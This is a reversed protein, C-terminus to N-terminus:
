EDKNSGGFLIGFYEEMADAIEDSTKGDTVHETAKVFYDNLVEGYPRYTNTYPDFILDNSGYIVDGTGLGGSGMQVDPDEEEGGDTDTNDDTSGGIEIDIEPDVATIDNETIGFLNCLEKIVEAMTSNNVNQVIIENALTTGAAKFAKEAGSPNSKADSILGKMLMYIPDDSRVGSHQLHTNLEEAIFLADASEADSIAAGLSELAKKSSAGSLDALAQGLKAINADLSLILQEAIPEASNERDLDKNLSIVTNIAEAKMESLLQSSEVVTRLAVLDETASAKLSDAIFSSEVKALIENLKTIIWEKDFEDIPTEGPEARVPVLIAGVTSCVAIAFVLLGAVITKSKFEKVPKQDLRTDADERQLAAFVGNDERLEVMTAVKEDLSYLNDLRKALRMDSPMFLFYLAAALLASGGGFLAYLYPRMDNGALKFIVTLVALSIAGVGLGLLLASTISQARVRRKFKNFSKSMIKRAFIYTYTFLFLECGIIVDSSAKTLPFGGNKICLTFKQIINVKKHTVDGNLTIKGDTDSNM